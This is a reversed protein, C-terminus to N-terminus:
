FHIFKTTTSGQHVVYIGPALTNITSSLTETTCNAVITGFISYIVASSNCAIDEIATGPASIIVESTVNEIILRGMTADYNSKAGTVNIQSPHSGDSLTLYTIFGDSLTYQHAPWM